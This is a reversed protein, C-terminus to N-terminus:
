RLTLGYAVTLEDGEFEPVVISKAFILLCNAVPASAIPEGEVTANVVRGDSGFTILVTADGTARGGQHCKEAHIMRLRARHQVLAMNVGEPVAGVATALRPQLDSPVEGSSPVASPKAEDAQPAEPPAPEADAVEEQAEAEAPEPIADQAPKAIAEDAAPAPEGDVVAAAERSGAGENALEGVAPNAEAAPAPPESPAPAAVATAEDSSTETPRSTVKAQANLGPFYRVAMAQVSPPLNVRGDFVLFGAGVAGGLTAVLAVMLWRGRRKPPQANPVSQAIQRSVDSTASDWDGADRPATPPAQEAVPAVQALPAQVADIALVTASPEPPVKAAIPLSDDVLELVGRSPGSGDTALGGDDSAAAPPLGPSLEADVGFAMQTRAVELTARGNAGVDVKAPDTPPPALGLMTGGGVKSKGGAGVPFATSGVGVATKALPSVEEAALVPSPQGVPAAAQAVVEPGASPPLPPPRRRNPPPAVGMMTAKMAAPRRPPPVKLPPPTAAERLAPAAAPRNEETPLSKTAKQGERDYIETPQDFDDAASTAVPEAIVPEAVVPAAVRISRSTKTKPISPEAGAVLKTRGLPVAPVQSASATPARSAAMTVKPLPVKISSRSPTPASLEARPKPIQVESASASASPELSPLEAKSSSRHPQPRVSPLDPEDPKLSSSDEEAENKAAAEQPTHQGSTRKDPKVSPLEAEEGSTRELPAKSEKAVDPQAPIDARPKTGDIRINKRCHKCTLDVVKGKIRTEYASDPLAFKSRCSDCQVTFPM